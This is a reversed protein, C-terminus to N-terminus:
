CGGSGSYSIMGIALGSLTGASSQVTVTQPEPSTGAVPGAFAVTPAGLVIDPKTSSPATSDDCGSLALALAGAFALRWATMSWEDVPLADGRFCPVVRVGDFWM